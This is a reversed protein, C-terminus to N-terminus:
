DACVDVAGRRVRAAAAPGPVGARRAPQVADGQLRDEAEAQGAGPEAELRADWRAPRPVLDGVAVPGRGVPARPLVGGARARADDLAAHDDALKGRLDGAAAETAEEVKRLPRPRVGGSVLAEEVM